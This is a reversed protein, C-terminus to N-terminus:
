AFPKTIWRRMWGRSPLSLSTVAQPMERRSFSRIGKWTYLYNTRPEPRSLRVGKEGALFPRRPLENIIKHLEGEDLKRYGPKELPSSGEPLVSVAGACEGGIERLMAFDNKDSIGLQRAIMKRIEAEPLLNSFFSRAPYDVYPEERLPLSLSLPIARKRKLWGGDYAFVFHRNEDLWLHGVLHDRFYIDLRSESQRNSM